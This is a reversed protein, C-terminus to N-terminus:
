RAGLLGGNAQTSLFLDPLLNQFITIKDKLQQCLQQASNIWVIMDKFWPVACIIEARSAVEYWRGDHEFTYGVSNHDHHHGKQHPTTTLINFAHVSLILKDCNVHFSVLIEEPVPPNLVKQANITMLESLTHKDPVIVCSKVRNLCIMAKDMLQIVQHGSTLM